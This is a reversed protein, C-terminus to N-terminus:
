LRQIRQRIQFRGCMTDIILLMAPSYYWTGTSQINIESPGTERGNSTAIILNQAGVSM